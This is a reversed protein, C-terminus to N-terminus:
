YSDRDRRQRREPDRNSPTSPVFTSYDVRLPRGFIEKGQLYALGKTASEIDVFDAHAFGRPQGTRRDIAVRVDIVNKVGMFLKNLDADAMEYALNGVFLTRSPPAAPRPERDTKARYNVILRRGEYVQQNKGAIAATAADVSDFEVYAFGKSMGRPDSAMIINTINGFEEFERRLDVDTIEFLLNGVYVSNTPKLPTNSRREAMADNRREGREGGRRYSDRRDGTRDWDRGRPASFGAAAGAAEAADVVSEKAQHAREGVREAADQASQSASGAADSAYTSASETASSIASKLSSSEHSDASKTESLPSSTSSSGNPTESGADSSAFRRFAHSTALPSKSRLLFPSCTNISRSGSILSNVPTSIARFASRRILHMTASVTSSHESLVASPQLKQAM